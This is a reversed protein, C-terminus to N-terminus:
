GCEHSAINFLELYLVKYHITINRRMIIKLLITDIEHIYIVMYFVLYSGVYLFM